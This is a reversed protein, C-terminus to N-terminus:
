SEVTGCGSRQNSKVSQVSNLAFADIDAIGSTRKLHGHAVEGSELIEFAVVSSYSSPREGKGVHVQIPKSLPRRSVVKPSCRKVDYKQGGERKAQAMVLPVGALLISSFVLLRMYM